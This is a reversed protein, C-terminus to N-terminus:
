SGVSLDRGELPVFVFIRAWCDAAFVMRLQFYKSGELITVRGFHSSKREPGLGVIWRIGRGDESGSPVTPSTETAYMDCFCSMVPKCLAIPIVYRGGVDDVKKFGRAYRGSVGGAEGVDKDGAIWPGGGECAM